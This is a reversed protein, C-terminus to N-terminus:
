LWPQQQARRAAFQQIAATHKQTLGIEDLGELLNRKAHQAIDFAFTRGSPSTVRQTELDINLQYGPAAIAEEFLLSISEADLVVPLLGNKVANSAFIDGFSPALVARFGYDTLAWVAHERSSGCGFNRRALLIQAGQYRSQNLVFDRQLLDYNSDRYRWDFFLNLGFVGRRETEKLFQKPIIVDTDVDPRDLPVVLSQLQTFAQMANVEM